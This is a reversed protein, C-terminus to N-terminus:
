ADPDVARRVGWGAIGGLGGLTAATAVTVGCLVLLHVALPVMPGSPELRLFRSLGVSVTCGILGTVAGAQVGAWIARGVHGTIELRGAGVGAVLFLTHVLSQLAGDSVLEGRLAIARLLEIVVVAVGCILWVYRARM